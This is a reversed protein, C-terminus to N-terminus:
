IIDDFFVPAESQTKVQPVDKKGTMFEKRETAIQEARKIAKKDGWIENVMEAMDAPKLGLQYADDVFKMIKQGRQKADWPLNLAEIQSDVASFLREKNITEIVFEPNVQSKDFVGSEVLQNIKDQTDIFEDESVQHSARLADLKANLERQSQEQKVSGELTDARYKHYKAEYDLADAKREDESMGYWKELLNINENLFQNRYQVPDVGALKAMNFMRINPDPENLISKIQEGAQKVKLDYASLNKKEKSLETFKKDWATKGSYNGLLDKIQVQEEKGDVKVTVIAEEDIDLEKDQYKAKVLKRAQAEAKAKDTAESKADKTDNQAAAKDESKKGKDTDSSLDISKETKTESKDSAKSEKAEKAKQSRSRKEASTVQELEDFTVPGSGSNLEIKGNQVTDTTTMNVNPNVSTESM